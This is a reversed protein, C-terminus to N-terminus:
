KKADPARPVPEIKLCRLGYSRLRTKLARRVRVRPPVGSPDDLAVLVIRFPPRQKRAV